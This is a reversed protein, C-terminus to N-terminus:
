DEAQAEAANEADQRAFWGQCTEGKGEAQAIVQSVRLWMDPCDSKANEYVDKLAALLAQAKIEQDIIMAIEQCHARFTAQWTFLGPHPDNFLWIIKQLLDREENVLRQTARIAMPSPTSKDVIWRTKRNSVHIPM